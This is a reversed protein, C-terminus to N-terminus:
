GRGLRPIQITASNKFLGLWQEFWSAAFVRLLVLMSDGLRLCFYAAVGIDIGPGIGRSKKGAREGDEYQMDESSEGLM